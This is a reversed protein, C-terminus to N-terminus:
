YLYPAPVFFIINYYSPNDLTHFIVFQAFLYICGFDINNVYTLPYVISLYISIVINYVM